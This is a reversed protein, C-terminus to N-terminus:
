DKITEITAFLTKQVGNKVIFNEDEGISFPSFHKVKLDYNKQNKLTEASTMENILKKNEKLTTITSNKNGTMKMPNEQYSHVDDYYNFNNLNKTSAITSYNKYQKETQMQLPIASYSDISSEHNPRTRKSNNQKKYELIKPTFM